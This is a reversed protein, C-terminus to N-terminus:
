QRRLCSCLAQAFSKQYKEPLFLESKHKLRSLSVHVKLRFSLMRRCDASSVSSKVRCRRWFFLEFFCRASNSLKLLESRWIQSSSLKIPLHGNISFIIFRMKSSHCSRISFSLTFKISIFIRQSLLQLLEATNVLIPIHFTLSNHFYFM